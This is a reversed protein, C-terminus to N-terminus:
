NGCMPRKLLPVYTKSKVGQILDDISFVIKRFEEKFLVIEDNGKCKRKIESDYLNELDDMVDKIMSASFIM